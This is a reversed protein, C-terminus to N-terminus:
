LRSNRTTTTTRAEVKDHWSKKSGCGTKKRNEPQLTDKRESGSENTHAAGSTVLTREAMCQKQIRLVTM